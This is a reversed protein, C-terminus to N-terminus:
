ESKSTSQGTTRATGGASGDSSTFVAEAQDGVAINGASLTGGSVIVGYNLIAEQRKKLDTTDINRADLFSVISDLLQNAIIKVYMEKDLKQFYRRYVSSSAAERLSTSAGYDFAPNERILDEARRQRRMLLWNHFVLAFLRGPSSLWLLFPQVFTQKALRLVKRVTWVSEVTDIEHYEEKVPPMLLYDGEAFLSKGAKRFRIFISLVLEGRWSIVRICKYYRIDESPTEKFHQMLAPDIQTYPRAYKDPLFRPDDRIEQGNVYLKDELCLNSLGLGRMADTVYDYLESVQFAVPTLTEGGADQKGKSVDVAFSWAGINFGAGAFPSYGSYVIVNCGQRPFMEMLKQELSPDLPFQINEPKFMSKALTKAEQGYYVVGIETAVTLWVLALLLSLWPLFPLIYLIVLLYLIWEGRHRLSPVFHLPLWWILIAPIFVVALLIILNIWLPNDLSLLSALPSPPFTLRNILLNPDDPYYLNSFFHDLLFTALGNLPTSKQTISSYIFPLLTFMFILITFLLMISLILDRIFTRRQAILCSKVVSIIDVGYSEGVARYKEEVVNHIVHNRFNEDLHAAACLYRTAETHPLTTSSVIPNQIGSSVIWRFMIGSTGLTVEDNGSLTAVQVRQRNVMVVTQADFGQIIFRGQHQFIRAHQPQISSDSFVIDNLNSNSGIRTDPKSIQVTSGARPGNLFQLSPQVQSFPTNM